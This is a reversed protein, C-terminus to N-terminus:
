YVTFTHFYDTNSITVITLLIAAITLGEWITSSSRAFPAVWHSAYQTIRGHITSSDYLKYSRM